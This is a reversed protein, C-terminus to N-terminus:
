GLVVALHWLYGPDPCGGSTQPGTPLGPRDGHRQFGPLPYEVVLIADWWPSEGDGIINVPKARRLPRDRRGNLIRNCKRTYQRYRDSGEGEKFKLLNIM